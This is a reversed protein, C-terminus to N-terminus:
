RSSNGRRFARGTYGRCRSGCLLGHAAGLDAIAGGTRDPLRLANRALQLLHDIDRALLARAGGLVLLLIQELRDSSDDHWIGSATGCAKRKRESDCLNPMAGPITRGSPLPGGPPVYQVSTYVTDGFISFRFFTGLRGLEGEQRRGEWVEEGGFVLLFSQLIRSGLRGELFQPSLSDMEGM